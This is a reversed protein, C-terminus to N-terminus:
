RGVADEGAKFPRHFLKKDHCVLSKSLTPNNSYNVAHCVDKDTTSCLHLCFFIM